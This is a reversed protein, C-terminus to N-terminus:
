ILTAIRILLWRSSPEIPDSHGILIQMYQIFSDIPIVLLMIKQLFDKAFSLLTIGRGSTTSIECTPSLGVNGRLRISVM